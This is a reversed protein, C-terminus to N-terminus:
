RTAGRGPSAGSGSGDTALHRKAWEVNAHSGVVVGDDDLVLVPVDEQGTLKRIAHHRGRKTLPRLKMGEITKITHHHGSDDLSKAARGCPHTRAGRKQGQVHLAADPAGQPQVPQEISADVSRGRMVTSAAEAHRHDHGRRLQRSRPQRHRPRPRARPRVRNAAAIARADPPAAGSPSVAGGTVAGVALALMSAPVASRMLFQPPAAM